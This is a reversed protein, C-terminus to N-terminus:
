CPLLLPTQVEAGSLPQSQASCHTSLAFLQLYRPKTKWAVLSVNTPFNKKTVAAALFATCRCQASTPMLSGARCHLSNAVRAGGMMLQSTSTQPTSDLRTFWCFNQVFTESTKERTKSAWILHPREILIQGSGVACRRRAARELTDDFKSRLCAPAPHYTAQRM